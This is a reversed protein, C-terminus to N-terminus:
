AEAEAYRMIHRLCPDEGGVETRFRPVLNRAGREMRRFSSWTTKQCGCGEVEPSPNGRRVCRYIKLGPDTKIRECIVTGGLAAEGEM